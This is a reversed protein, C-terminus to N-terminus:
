GRGGREGDGRGTPRPVRDVAGAVAEREGALARQSRGLRDQATWAEGASRALGTSLLMSPVAHAAMPWHGGGLGVGVVFSHYSGWAAIWRNRNSSTTAVATAATDVGRRQDAYHQAQEVVAQGAEALEAGQEVRTGLGVVDQVVRARALRGLSQELWVSPQPATYAEGYADDLGAQIRDATDSIPGTEAAHRTAAAVSVTHRSGALRAAAALIREADSTGDRSWDVLDLGARRWLGGFREAVKAGASPDDGFGQEYQRLALVAERAFLQTVDAAARQEPTRSPQAGPDQLFKRLHDPDEATM